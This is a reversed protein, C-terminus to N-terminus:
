RHPDQQRTSRCSRAAERRGWAKLRAELEELRELQEELQKAPRRRNLEDMMDHVEMMPM